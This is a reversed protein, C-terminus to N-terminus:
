RASEPTAPEPVRAETLTRMAAARLVERLFASQSVGRVRAAAYWLDKDAAPLRVATWRMAKATLRRTAM